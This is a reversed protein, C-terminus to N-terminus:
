RQLTSSTDAGDERKTTTREVVVTWGRSNKHDRLDRVISVGGERTQQSVNVDPYKKEIGEIAKRSGIIGLFCVKDMGLGWEEMMKLAAQATNGTAVM